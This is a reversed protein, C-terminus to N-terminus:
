FEINHLWDGTKEWGFLWCFGALPHIIINHIANKYRNSM